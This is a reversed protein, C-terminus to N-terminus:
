NDTYEKYNVKSIYFISDKFDYEFVLEGLFAIDSIQVPVIANIKNNNIEYTIYNGLYAKKYLQINDSFNNINVQQMTDKINITLKNDIKTKINKKIFNNINEIEYENLDKSNLIHIKNVYLGTGYGSTTNIIIENIGDDNIDKYYLMPKYAKNTSNQWDYLKDINNYSVVIGDYRDKNNNLPDVKLNINGETTKLQSLLLNYKKFYETNTDNIPKITKINALDSCSTFLILCLFVVIIKIKM